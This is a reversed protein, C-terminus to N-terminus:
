KLPIGAGRQHSRNSSLEATTREVISPVSHFFCSLAVTEIYVTEEDAAAGDVDKKIEQDEDEHTVIRNNATRIPKQNNPLRYREQPAETGGGSLLDYQRGDEGQSAQLYFLCVALDRSL